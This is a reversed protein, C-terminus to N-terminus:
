AARHIKLETQCHNCLDTLPWKVASRVIKFSQACKPCIGSGGLIVEEQGSILFFIFPGALLLLPVAFFHVLPIFLAVVAGGYAMGLAKLGRKTREAKTWAQYEVEGESARSEDVSEIRVRISEHAKPDM